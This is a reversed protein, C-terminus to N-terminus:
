VEAFEFSIPQTEPVHDGARVADVMGVLRELVAGVNIGLRHVPVFAPAIGPFNALGVIDLHAPTEGCRAAVGETAATLMNDDAVILGDPQQQNYPAFLLQMAHRASAPNHLDCFQLWEPQLSLGHQGLAEHLFRLPSEQEHWTGPCLVALRRHGHDALWAVAKSFFSSYHVCLKPIGPLEYPEALAARAVGPHELLPTGRFERAGSAFILGAVRNNVVQEIIGQYTAIDRHGSLGFFSSFTRESTHGLRLAEEQLVSWFWGKHTPGHPFILTYHHLHPPYATVHTGHRRAGVTVFGQTTLREVAAQATALCVGHRRALARRNPLRAGPSLRGCVVDQRLQEVLKDAAAKM